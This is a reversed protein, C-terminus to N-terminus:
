HVPLAELTLVQFPQLVFSHPEGGTLSTPKEEKDARWPSHATFRGPTGAPLEFVRAVDLSINQARVSPNRLTLIAKGPSWAAWGYVELKAPDGGVWHTDALVDANQRSWNASEALNDWDGNSLLSHTIYMEQLQTGSGFYSHVEHVFVNARDDGLHEAHKAYIIGHLMLSNLPFLPGRQVIGAYANADRYTIWRERWPGAGAFSHDEGGRWISDAYQLWFPSPYTGTTLNIFIDPKVQRWDGILSIAAHFDSDFSSGPYVSNVNGTGDIKFQNIGYKRIFDLTVERFRAYYNPGSLAFGGPNTEYGHHRGFKLREEKAKAYGGWPSLWIGPAAGFSSAAAALPAFGDPFGANFSWLTRPDDWGDDFLFSDLQVHRKKALEEGFAHIVDLADTQNYRNEYGIDYWSNYHLFPRYPHAREREIYNLFARRIQGPPSIGIVSSYRVTQGAKVPLEREMSCIVHGKEVGCRSLPSEFALFVDGATVPSGKVTGALQASPLDFDFLCIERIPVDKSASLGIEQRIYNNGERLIAAWTIALGTRPDAFRVIVRKGPLQEEVRASGPKAPLDEIRPEDVISLLASSVTRGDRFVLSFCNEPLSIPLKTFAYSFFAGRLHKGTLSWRASLIENRVTVGDLRIEVSPKGPHVGPLYNQQAFTHAAVCLWLLV